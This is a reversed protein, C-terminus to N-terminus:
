QIHMNRKMSVPTVHAQPFQKLIEASYLIYRIYRKSNKIAIELGLFGQFHGSKVLPLQVRGQILM